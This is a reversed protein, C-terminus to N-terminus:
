SRGTTARLSEHCSGLGSGTSVNRDAPVLSVQLASDTGAPDLFGTLASLSPPPQLGVSESRSRGYSSDWDEKGIKQKAQGAVREMAHFAAAYMAM